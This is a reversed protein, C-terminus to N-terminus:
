EPAIAFAMLRGCSGGHFLYWTKITTGIEAGLAPFKDGKPFHTQPSCGAIGARM